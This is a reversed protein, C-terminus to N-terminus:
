SLTLRAKVAIHLDYRCGHADGTNMWGTKNEWGAPLAEIVFYDATDDVSMLPNTVFACIAEGLLDDARADVVAQLDGLSQIVVDITYEEELEVPVGTFAPQLSSTRADGVYMSELRGDIENQLSTARVKGDDTVPVGALGPRAQLVTIIAAKVATRTTGRM